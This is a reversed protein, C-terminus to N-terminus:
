AIRRQKRLERREDEDTAGWIGQEHNVVAHTRCAALVPCPQCVAKAFQVRRAYKERAEATMAQHGIPFFTEPHFRTCPLDHDRAFDLPGLDALEPGVYTVPDARRGALWYNPASQIRSGRLHHDAQITM